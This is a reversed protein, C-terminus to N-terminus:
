SPLKIRRKLDPRQTRLDRGGHELIRRVVKVARSVDETMAGGQWGYEINARLGRLGEFERLATALEDGGLLAAVAITVEHHNAARVRLSRSRVVATAAIRGADYARVLRGNLSMSTVRADQYAQLANAWLGTIEEDPASERVLRGAEILDEIRDNM